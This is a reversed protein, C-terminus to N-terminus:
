MKKQKGMVHLMPSPGKSSSMKGSMKKVMNGMAKGAVPKMKM